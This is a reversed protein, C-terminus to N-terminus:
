HHDIIDDNILLSEKKAEIEVLTIMKYLITIFLKM